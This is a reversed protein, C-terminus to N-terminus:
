DNRVKEIAEINKEVEAICEKRTRHATTVYLGTQTDTATWFMKNKEYIGHAKAYAIRKGHDIYGETKEFTYGNKNDKIKKYFTGKEM